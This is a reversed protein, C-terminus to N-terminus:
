RGGKTSHLVLLFLAVFVAITGIAFWEALDSIILFWFWDTWSM